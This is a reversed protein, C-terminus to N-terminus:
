PAPTAAASLSNLITDVTDKTASILGTDVKYPLPSDIWPYIKMNDVLQNHFIYLFYVAIFDMSAYEDMVILHTKGEKLTNLFNPDGSDETVVVFQGAKGVEEIGAVIGPGAESDLGAVGVLNPYASILAKTKTAAVDVQSTDDENAVVKYGAAEITATFSQRAIDFSGGSLPGITAVDGSTKGRAQLEDIMGQALTSGIQVWNTGVYTLRKSQPLDGDTVITPVRQDICKDVSASLAQDWGGVVIVGAPHQSCETEVTAIFAALDIGTPGAKRVKVNLTKAAAELGPFVRNVFLPLTSDQSIWVYEQNARDAGGIVGTNPGASPTTSGCAGFLIGAVM